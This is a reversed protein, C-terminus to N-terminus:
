RAATAAAPPRRSPLGLRREIERTLKEIVGEDVLMEDARDTAAGAEAALEAPSAVHLEGTAPALPARPSLPTFEPTPNAVNRGAARLREDIFRSARDLAGGEVYREDVRRSADRMEGALESPSAVRPRDPVLGSLDPTLAAVDIIGPGNSPRAAGLARMTPGLGIENPYVKRPAPARGAQELTPGTTVSPTEFKRGASRPEAPAAPETEPQESQPPVLGEIQQEIAPGIKPPRTTKKPPEVAPRSGPPIPVEKVNTQTLGGGLEYDPGLM